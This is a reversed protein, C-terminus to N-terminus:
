RDQWRFLCFFIAAFVFVVLFWTLMGPGFERSGMVYGYGDRFRAPVPPASRLRELYQQLQQREIRSSIWLFAVAGALGASVSTLYIRLRQMLCNQAFGHEAWIWSM